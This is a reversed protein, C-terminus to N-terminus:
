RNSGWTHRLHRGDAVPRAQSRRAAGDGRVPCERARQAGARGDPPRGPMRSQRAPHVCGRWWSCQGDVGSGGPRSGSRTYWRPSEGRVASRRPDLAVGASPASIVESTWRPGGSHDMKQIGDVATMPLAPALFVRRTRRRSATPQRGDAPHGDPAPRVSPVLTHPRRQVDDLAVGCRPQTEDSLWRGGEFGQPLGAGPRERPPCRGQRPVRGCLRAAHEHSPWAWPPLTTGAPAGRGRANAWAGRPRGVCTRAPRRAQTPGPKTLGGPRRRAGPADASPTCGRSPRRPRPPALRPLAGLAAGPGPTSTGSAGATRPPGPGRPPLRPGRAAAGPPGASRAAGASPPRAGPPGGPLGAPPGGGSRPRSLAAPGHVPPLAGSRRRRALQIADRWHPKGREGPQQPLLAPAVGWGGPGTTTWSRSLWAGGPGAASVLVRPPRTSQLRRLRPARAGPRTGLHGRSVGAAHHAPASSAVAM